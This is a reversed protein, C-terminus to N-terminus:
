CPRMRIPRPSSLPLPGLPSRTAPGRSRGCLRFSALPLSTRRPACRRILRRAANGTVAGAHRPLARTRTPPCWCNSCCNRGAGRVADDLERLAALQRRKHPAPDHPHWRILVKGYAAGLARLDKALRSPAAEALLSRQGSAEVAVAVRMGAAAAEDAVRRQGRDILIAAESDSQGSLRGDLAQLVGQWVLYKLEARRATGSDAGLRELARVLSGRHDLAVMYCRDMAAHTQVNRSMVTPYRRLRPLADHPEYRDTRIRGDIM